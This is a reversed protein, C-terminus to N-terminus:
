YVAWVHLWATSFNQMVSETIPRIRRCFRLASASSERKSGAEERQLYSPEPVLRKKNRFLGSKTGSCAGSCLSMGHTFLPANAFDAENRGTLPQKQIKGMCVVPNRVLIEGSLARKLRKSRLQEPVFPMFSSISSDGPVLKETAKRARLKGDSWPWRRAIAQELIYVSAHASAALIIEKLLTSRHGFGSLLNSAM